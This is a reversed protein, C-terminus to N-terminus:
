SVDGKFLSPDHACPCCGREGQIEGTRYGNENPRSDALTGTNDDGGGPIVSIRAVTADSGPESVIAAVIRQAHRSGPGDRSIDRKTCTDVDHGEKVGVACAHVDVTGQVLTVSVVNKLHVVAIVVNHATRILSLPNGTESFLPWHLPNAHIERSCM